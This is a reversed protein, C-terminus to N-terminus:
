DKANLARLYTSYDKKIRNATANNQKLIGKYEYIVEEWTPERKLRAKATEYKRFLWRVSAAINKNPNWVDGKSLHVFHDRLEGKYNKLIKQTQKTLQILGEANGVKLKNKASEREKFGSESAILAKVYNPHLLNKPMFVFNWYATWGNILSNFKNGNTFGLSNKSVKPKANRFLNSLAIQELEDGKLVDKGSPNKRCHGDWDGVTGESNIKDHRRVWHEGIPCARWKSSNKKQKASWLLRKEKKISPLYDDIIEHWNVLDVKYPLDSEEFLNKLKDIKFNPNNKAKIALDIDSNKRHKGTARSGFLYVDPLEDKAFVKNFAKKIFDLHKKELGYTRM